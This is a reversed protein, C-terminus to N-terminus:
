GIVQWVGTFTRVLSVAGNPPVVFNVSNPLFLRNAALSAGSNHVLTCSDAASTNILNIVQGANVGTADFGTISLAVGAALFLNQNGPWNGAPNYDNQAGAAAVTTSQGTIAGFATISSQVVLATSITTLPLTPSVIALMRWRATTGDYIFAATGGSPIVFSSAAAPFVFRNTAVSNVDQNTFSINLIGVNEVVVVRGDTNAGGTLM